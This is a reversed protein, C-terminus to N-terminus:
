FYKLTKVFDNNFKNEDKRLVINYINYNNLNDFDNPNLQNIKFLREDIKTQQLQQKEIVNLKGNNFLFDDFKHLHQCLLMIITGSTDLKKATAKILTKLEDKSKSKLSDSHYIWYNIAASIAITNPKHKTILNNDEIKKIYETFDEKNDIHFQFMMSNIFDSPKSININLSVKSNKVLELFKKCGNNSCSTTIDYIKAIEKQTRIYGTNKCAYYTCAAILGKKTNGRSKKNGTQKINNYNKLIVNNYLIIVDDYVFKNLGLKKCCKIILNTTLQENRKEYSTNSWIEFKKLYQNRIGKTILVNQKSDNKSSDIIVNDNEIDIGNNSNNFHTNVTGCQQCINTATHSDYYFNNSGCNECINITETINNQQKNKYDYADVLNILENFDDM